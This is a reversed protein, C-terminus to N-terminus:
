RRKGGHEVVVRVMVVLRKEGECGGMGMLNEAMEVMVLVMAVMVLGPM